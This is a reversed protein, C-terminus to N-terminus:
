EGTLGQGDLEGAGLVERQLGREHDVVRGYREASWGATPRGDCQDATASRRRGGAGRLPAVIRLRSVMPSAVAAATTTPVTPTVATGARAAGAPRADVIAKLLQEAARTRNGDESSVLRAM